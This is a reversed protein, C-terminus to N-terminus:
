LMGSSVQELVVSWWNDPDDLARADVNALDDALPGVAGIYAEDSWGRTEAWHSAVRCLSWVLSALDSNVFRDPLLGDRDISYVSHSQLDVCISTGLDTGVVVFRRLGRTFEEVPARDLAAAEFIPGVHRPLGVDRLLRVEDEGLAASVSASAMRLREVDRCVLYVIEDAAAPHM